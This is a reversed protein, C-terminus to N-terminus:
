LRILFHLTYPCFPNTFLHTNHDLGSQWQMCLVQSTQQNLLKLGAHLCNQSPVTKPPHIWYDLWRWDCFTKLLLWHISTLLLHPLPLESDHNEWMLQLSKWMCVPETQNLLIWIRAQFLHESMRILQSDQTSLSLMHYYVRKSECLQATARCM